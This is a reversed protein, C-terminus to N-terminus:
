KYIFVYRYNTKLDSNGECINTATNLFLCGHIRHTTETKPVDDKKDKDSSLACNDSNIQAYYFVSCLNNEMNPRIGTVSNLKSSRFGM